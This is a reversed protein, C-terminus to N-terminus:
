LFYPILGALVQFLTAWQASTLVTSTTLPNGCNNGTPGGNFRSQLWTLAGPAGTVVTTIHEGVTTRTYDVSAGAACYRAVMGDVDAIPIIEDGTAQYIYTPATPAHQGLTDAALIIQAQPQALPNAVSFDKSIDHFAFDLIISTNCLTGVTVLDAQGQANLSSQLLTALQPYARSVGVMGGIYYGAFPGGNINLAINGVNVPVGGEAVAVVHLEPAYSPQLESSWATALAGGSYGWMGVPTAAGALGAPGFQETARIGDLVAHGAQVGAGYASLPGEYDPVDVAYGRELLGTVLLIEAQEVPNALPAGLQLQYSPACQAGLSDEAVQYSVLPRVPLPSRSTPEIVTTPTAEPNGQTDTTRYLLQWARVHQEGLLGFAAVSVSRTRLVTGPATTALNAPPQYFPDSQPPLPSGAAAAVPGTGGAGGAVLVLSGTLIGAALLVRGARPRRSRGVAVTVWTEAVATAGMSRVVGRRGRSGIM